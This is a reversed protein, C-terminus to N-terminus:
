LLGHLRLLLDSLFIRIFFLIILVIIPSIDLGGLNPLFRRIPRFVPETARYLVDSIVRVARNYTNVLNFAILWSMIAAAIVVWWYIDVVFILVQLLPDLILTM